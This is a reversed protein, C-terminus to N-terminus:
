KEPSGGSQGCVLAKEFSRDANTSLESFSLVRCHLEVGSDFKNTVMINNVITNLVKEVDGEAAALGVRELVEMVNKESLERWGRQQELPSRDHQESEDKM